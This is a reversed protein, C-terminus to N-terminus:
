QLTSFVNVSESVSFISLSWWLSEVERASLLWPNYLSKSLGDICWKTGLYTYKGEKETHCVERYFGKEWYM